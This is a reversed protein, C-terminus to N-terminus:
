FQGNYLSHGIRIIEGERSLGFSTDVVIDGIALPEDHEVPDQIRPVPVHTIQESAVLQKQRDSMLDVRAKLDAVSQELARSSADLEAALRSFDYGTRKMRPPEFVVSDTDLSVDTTVAAM